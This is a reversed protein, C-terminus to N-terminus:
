KHNIARQEVLDVRRNKSKGEDTRNSAVPTLSGAGHHSLNTTAIDYTTTLAKVAAAARDSSLKMNM